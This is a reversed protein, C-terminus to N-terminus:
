TLTLSYIFKHAFSRSRMKTSFMLNKSCARLIVVDIFKTM